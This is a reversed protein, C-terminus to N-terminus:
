HSFLLQFNHRYYLIPLQTLPWSCGDGEALPQSNELKKCSPKCKQANDGYKNHYWCLEQPQQHPGPSQRTGSQKSSQLAQLMSKLEAVEKRLHGLESTTSVAAIAPSPTTVEVIKGALQRTFISKCSRGLFTSNEQMGALDQPIKCSDQVVLNRCFGVLKWLIECSRVLDQLFALFLVNELFIKCSRKVLHTLNDFSGTDPTSALVIRVYLPLRQLFVECLFANDTDWAKDGLLQQM